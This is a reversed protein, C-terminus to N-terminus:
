ENGVETKRADAQLTLQLTCQFGVPLAIRWGPGQEIGGARQARPMPLEGVVGAGIDHGAVVEAQVVVHEVGGHQEIRNGLAIARHEGFAM